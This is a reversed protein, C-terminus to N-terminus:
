KRRRLNNVVALIRDVALNVESETTLMSLSLRISGDLVAQECGMCTLVHSRQSAGSTCASGTSCAVGALDFAILLAQRDLDPFSVNSTHPLRPETGNIVVPSADATLRHELYDRLRRMRHISEEMAEQCLELAAAMGVVTAVSETGPRLGLQQSGGVLLPELTVGHRLVLVGIGRPGHFKHASVALSAVGLQQFNVPMKGIAQIADCHFAVNREVCIKALHQIPQITGVENNAAMVCVLRTHETLASKLVAPRVHGSRSVPLQEVECGLNELREAAALSSPHEIGSILVHGPQNVLGRIALNNSETGGSTIIIKDAHPVGVTAGLLRGIKEKVEELKRRARQGPRHQSAPNMYGAHLCATMAEVVVPHIPTTSNNDLYVSDMCVLPRM